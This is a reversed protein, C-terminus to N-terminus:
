CFLLMLKQLQFFYGSARVWTKSLEPHWGGLKVNNITKYKRYGVLSYCNFESEVRPMRNAAIENAYVSNNTSLNSIIVSFLILVVYKKAISVGKM